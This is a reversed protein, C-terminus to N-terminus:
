PMEKTHRRRAERTKTSPKQLDHDHRDSLMVHRENRQLINIFGILKAFDGDGHQLADRQVDSLSVENSQHAGGSRALRREHIDQPTEIMGSGPIVPKVPLIDHLQRSVPPGHQTILLNAEDELVEIQQGAGTSEFIHHHRERIGHLVGGVPFSALPGSLQQLSNTQPFMEVVFRRLERAALLLSHSDGSSQDVVRGQEERVFGGAVEIRRGTFFDQADELLEVLFFPNGDNQHSVIWIDGFMGFANDPYTVTDDFRLSSFMPVGFGIGRFM